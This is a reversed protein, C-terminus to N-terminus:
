KKRLVRRRRIRFDDDTNRRADQGSGCDTITNQFGGAHVVNLAVKYRVNGTYDNDNATIVRRGGVPLPVSTTQSLRRDRANNLTELIIRYPRTHPRVNSPM